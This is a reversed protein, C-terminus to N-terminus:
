RRAATSGEDNSSGPAHHLSYMADARGKGLFGLIEDSLDREGEWLRLSLVLNVLLGHSLFLRAQEADMGIDERLVRYVRAFSDRSLQGFRPDSGMMFLRVIMMFTDHDKVIEAYMDGLLQRREVDNSDAAVPAEAFRQCLQEVVYTAAEEFLTEKSRFFRVVYAQSVGAERAISDTTAAAYGVRAFVRIAAKLMLVKRENAPMRTAAM